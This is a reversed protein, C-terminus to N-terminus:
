LSNNKNNINRFFYYKNLLEDLYISLELIETSILIDNQLELLNNLKERTSFIDEEINEMSFKGKM